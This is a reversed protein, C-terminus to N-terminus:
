PVLRHRRWARHVDRAFRLRDELWHARGQWFEVTELAVRFGGWDEPMELSRQDERLVAAYCRRGATLHVPQWRWPM